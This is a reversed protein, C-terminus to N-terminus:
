GPTYIMKLLIAFDESNDNAIIRHRGEPTPANLPTSPSLMDRLKPSSFSVVTSHVRFLTDGCAVEVNGDEFYFIDHRTAMREGGSNVIDGDLETPVLDSVTSISFTPSSPAGTPVEVFTEPFTEPFPEPSSVMDYLISPPKIAQLVSSPLDIDITPTHLDQPVFAVPTEVEAPAEAAM